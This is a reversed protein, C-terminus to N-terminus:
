KADHLTLAHMRGNLSRKPALATPESDKCSKRKARQCCQLGFYTRKEGMYPLLFEKSINDYKNNINKRM